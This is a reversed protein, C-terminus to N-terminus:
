IEEAFFLYVIYPIMIAVANLSSSISFLFRNREKFFPEPQNKIKTSQM